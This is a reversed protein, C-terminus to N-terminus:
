KVLAEFYTNLQDAESAPGAFYNYYDAIMSPVLKDIATIAKRILMVAEPDDPDLDFWIGAALDGKTEIKVFCEPGIGFCWADSDYSGLPDREASDITSWIGANFRRVRPFIPTLVAEVAELTLGHDAYDQSPPKVAYMDIYGFGSPHRNRKEAEVGDAIDKEVEACVTMPYLNRMAWGDEHIHILDVM